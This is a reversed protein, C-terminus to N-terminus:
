KTEPYKLVVAEVPLSIKRMKFCRSAVLNSNRFTKVTLSVIQGFFKPLVVTWFLFFLGSGISTRREFVDKSLSVVINVLVHSEEFFCSLSKISAFKRLM